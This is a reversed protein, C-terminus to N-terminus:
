CKKSVEIKLIPIQIITRGPNRKTLIKERLPKPETSIKSKDSKDSDSNKLGGM